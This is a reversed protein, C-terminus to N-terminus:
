NSVRTLNKITFALNSFVVLKPDLEEDGEQANIFPDNKEDDNDPTNQHHSHTPSQSRWSSPKTPPSQHMLLQVEVPSAELPTQQQKAEERQRKKNAELAKIRKQAARKQAEECMRQEEECKKREAREKEQCVQDEEEQHCRAEEEQWLKEEEETAVGNNNDMDSELEPTKAKMWENIPMPVTVNPAIFKPTPASM